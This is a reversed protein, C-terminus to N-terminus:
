SGGAVLRDLNSQMARITGLVVDPDVRARVLVSMGQFATVIMASQDRCNTDARLDGTSVANELARAITACIREIHAGYINRSTDDETGREVATNCYFCGRADKSGRANNGQQAIIARLENLGAGPRDLVRFMDSVVDRGYAELAAEFLGQKSEFEAFLSFVNVGMDSALQKTSTAHYGNQWFSKMAIKTVDERVYSKLRGM